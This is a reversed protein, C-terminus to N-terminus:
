AMDFEPLLPFCARVADPISAPRGTAAKIFVWLTQGRAILEPGRFFRYRRLSAARRVDVVWTMVRLADGEVAPLLYHIEHSRVVWACDVERTAATCGTADAHAVTADQMWEVYAVNNVHANEDIASPAVVLPFEHVGAPATSRVRPLPNKTEQTM